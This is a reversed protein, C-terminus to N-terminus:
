DVQAITSICFTITKDTEDSILIYYGAESGVEFEIYKTSVTGEDKWYLNTNKGKQTGDANVTFYNIRQINDRIPIAIRDGEKYAYFGGEFLVTQIGLTENSIALCIEDNDEQAAFTEWDIMATAPTEQQGETDTTEETVEPEEQVEETEPEQATTPEETEEEGADTEEVVTETTEATSETEEGTNGCGCMLVAMVAVCLITKLGKRKM